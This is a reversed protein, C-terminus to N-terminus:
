PAVGWDPLTDAAPTKTRNRQNSGDLANMVYIEDDGNRDSQFAIKRGDPSFAPHSDVAANRTLRKKSSGDLANM